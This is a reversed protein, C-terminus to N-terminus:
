AIEYWALLWAFPTSDRKRRGACSVMLGAVGLTVDVACVTILPVPRLRSVHRQMGRVANVPAVM